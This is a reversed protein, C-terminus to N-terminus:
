KLIIKEVRIGSFKNQLPCTKQPLIFGILKLHFIACLEDQLYVCFFLYVSYTTIQLVINRENIYFRRQIQM